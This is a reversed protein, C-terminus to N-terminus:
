DSFSFHLFLLRDDAVLVYDNWDLAYFRGETVTIAWGARPRIVEEVDGMLEDILPGRRNPELFALRVHEGQRVRGLSDFVWRALAERLAARWDPLPTLSAPRYCEPFRESVQDALVGAPRVLTADFSYGVDSRHDNLAAYTSLRGELRGLALLTPADWLALGGVLDLWARGFPCASPQKGGAWSRLYDARATEGREELWDAYVLKAASDDPHAALARIFADEDTM